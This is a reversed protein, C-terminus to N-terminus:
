GGPAADGADAAAEVVLGERALAALLAAVDAAVVDAPVDPYRAHLAACLAALDGGAGLLEWVAAGVHNLGFYVETETSFVVAGDDLPQFMVGTAPAPLAPSTM